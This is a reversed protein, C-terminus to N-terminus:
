ILKIGFYLTGWALVALGLNWIIADLSRNHAKIAVMAGCAAISTLAAIPLGWEPYIWLGFLCLVGSVISGILAGLGQKLPHETQQLQVGMEEEIMVRLLRSEDAMLVDVVKELLKGEFGKAGYLVELEEREQPRNHQIEWREQQLMRHLRELRGWGLWASRGMKWLGYGLVFLGLEEILAVKNSVIPTLLTFVLLLTVATDRAADCGAHIHGPIELGHAEKSSILGFAQKEAVHALPEKGKFHDSEM